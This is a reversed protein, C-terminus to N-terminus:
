AKVESASSALSRGIFNFTYAIYESAAINLKKLMYEREVSVMRILGLMLGYIAMSAMRPEIDPRITGDAIGTKIVDISMAILDEGERTMEAARPDNPDISCSVPANEHHYFLAIFYDPYDEHFELMAHGMATLKEFGTSASEVAQRFMKKILQLARGVIAIYLDEKNKFYLYITGKSLEAAEAVEDMTTAPIGKSFFLKEAADIISDRRLQKERERRDAISM